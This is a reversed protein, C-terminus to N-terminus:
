TTCKVPELSYRTVTFLSFGGGEDEISGTGWWGGRNSDWIWEFLVESGWSGLSELLCLTPAVTYTKHMDTIHGMHKRM